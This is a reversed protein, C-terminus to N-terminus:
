RSTKRIHRMCFWLGLPFIVAVLLGSKLGLQMQDWGQQLGWRMLSSSRQAIESVMGAAWPGISCGIDGGLALLSFMAMGGGPFIGACYSITGPWMISVSFGVLACAALALVPSKALSALLYCGACLIGSISLMKSVAIKEGLMGYLMRGLGMLAAFMCPGLLDGIVKSVHLGNEAFLSVWQAMAQESAGAFVMLLVMWIFTKHRFLARASSKKSKQQAPLPVTAFFYINSIPVLAWLVCIVRFSGEGLVLLLFTTVLVVGLHGWCYFSHLISMSAASENGPLASAIPSVMVEILGSGVAYIVVSVLLGGYGMMEPLIGLCLLGLASCIHAIMLMTRHGWKDALQGCVVDTVLQTGFNLLILFSIKELSIGYQKQFLAFFLPALNNIIAQTIFGAYCASRTDKYTKQRM